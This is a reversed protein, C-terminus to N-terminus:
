RALIGAGRDRSARFDHIKKAIAALQEGKNKGVATGLFEKQIAKLDAGTLNNLSQIERDIEAPELDWSRDQLSQLRAM